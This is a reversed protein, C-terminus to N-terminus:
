ENLCELELAAHNSMEGWWVSLKKKKRKELSDNNSKWFLPFSRVM